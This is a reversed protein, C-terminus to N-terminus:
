SPEKEALAARAELVLTGLDTWELATYDKVAWAEAENALRELTERLRAITEDLAQIDRTYDDALVFITEPPRVIDVQGGTKEEHVDFLNRNVAYRKVDDSM